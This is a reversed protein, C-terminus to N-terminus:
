IELEFGQSKQVEPVIEKKLEYSERIALGTERLTRNTVECLSNVTKDYQESGQSIQNMSRDGSLTIMLDKNNLINMESDKLNNALIESRLKLERNIEPTLEKANIGPKLADFCIAQKLCDTILKTDTTKLGSEGVKEELIVSAHKAIREATYLDRQVGCAKMYEGATAMTIPEKTLERDEKINQTMFSEMNEKLIIPSKVQNVINNFKELNDGDMIKETSRNGSTMIKYSLENMITKNTTLRIESDKLHEAIAKAGEFLEKTVSPNLKNLNLEKRLADFCISQKICLKVDECSANKFGNPESMCELLKSAQKAILEVTYLDKKIGCAKMYDEATAMTIPTNTMERDEKIGNALMVDIDQKLTAEFKHHDVIAKLEYLSGRDMYNGKEQKSSGNPITDNLSNLMHIVSKDNVLHMESDKLNHAMVESKEKIKNMSEVSININNMESKLADFCISQKLCNTILKTDTTKLGPEGVKEELIVSAHKALREATYLDKKIGCAKMYDEATAGTIPTNTLERDEKISNAMLANMDQSLVMEKKQSNLMNKFEMMESNDREKALGKESYSVQNEMTKKSIYYDRSLENVFGRHTPYDALIEKALDNRIERIDCYTEYKEHKTINFEDAKMSKLLFRTEESTKAYLNVREKADFEVSSLPRNKYGIQIELKEKTIGSQDLYLKHNEYNKNIERGLELSHNKVERYEKWDGNGANIERLISATEILTNQYEFVKSKNENEINQYDAVMDKQRYQSLGNALSKYTKFEDKSYFMEVNERHRTMAVYTAKADMGKEAIVSVNDFTKGQSKHLTMAYGHDLKDYSKTNISVERNSETKVKLQDNNGGLVTGIMGNKVNMAKDNQLFMIKDNEAFSRGNINAIDEGIIGQLRKINRIEDNVERCTTRKYCLVAADGNEENKIYSEAAEKIVNERLDLEKINGHNEYRTLGEITNLKSFEVSAEKMWETKQRRIENLEFIRGKSQAIEAFKRFCDGSSIAEFQNSDGVAIVKAEFRKAISLIENWNQTGVMGAEDVIIVDGKKLQSSEYRKLDNYWDIQKLLGKDVIENFSLFKEKAIEYSRWDHTWSAITKSDIGADKGLNKSAVASLSMGIVRCGQNKYIDAVARMTSTKGAGAKGMVVSIQSNGTVGRAANKQEESLYGFKGDKSLIFEGIEMHSERKVINRSTMNEFKSLTDNELKQYKEGTYLFEGKASEGVYKAEELIKEFAIAVQEESGLRKNLEKLIDRQTFAAKTTNLLDIISNPNELIRRINSEKIQDNESLIRSKDGIMDSFWGRHKSPELDIGLDAFSKESIREKIGEKELYENALDAWLKRTEIAAGRACIARDKRELFEGNEDIARRTTQIHAHLNGENNHIAYTSILDRSTFRTNIFKELLEKNSELSLENPLALIITSATQASEKYNAVSEETKYHKEAYKDEFKEVENWVSLDKYKSHEPALTNVFEVDGARKTYDALKERREEYLKEGTIYAASQVSSRGNSRGVFGHHLHYIAM